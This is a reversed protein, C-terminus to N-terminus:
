RRAAVPRRVGEFILRVKILVLIHFIVWRGKDVLMFNSEMLGHLLFFSWFSYFIFIFNKDLYTNLKIFFLHNFIYLCVFFLLGVIGVSLVTDLYSNHGQTLSYIWVDFRTSYNYLSSDEGMGWVAGYGYGLMPKDLILNLLYDWILSRGTFSGPDYLLVEFFDLVEFSTMVYMVALISFVLGLMSYYYSQFSSFKSFNSYIFGIALGVLLFGMSTKSATFYLFIFALLTLLLWVKKGEKKYSCIFLIMSIVMALGADNKHSFIGRWNGSLEPISHVATPIFAISLFSLVLLVVFLKTLMRLFVNVDISCVFFILTFLSIMYLASRVFTVVPEVSWFISCMLFIAFLIYPLYMRVVSSFNFRAKAFFIFSVFLFGLYIVRRFISADGEVPDFEDLGISFPNIGVFAFLVFFVLFFEPNKFRSLSLSKIRM